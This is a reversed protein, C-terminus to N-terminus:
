GTANYQLLRGSDDPTGARGLLFLRSNTLFIAQLNDIEGGFYFTDVVTDILSSTDWPTSRVLKQITQGAGVRYLCTGDPPTFSVSAGMTSIPLTFSATTIDWPSGFDIQYLHSNADNGTGVVRTGESKFSIDSFNKALGGFGTAFGGIRTPIQTTDNWFFNPSLNFSVLNGIILGTAGALWLTSGDDSVAIGFVHEMNEPIAANQLYTGYFSQGDLDWGSGSDFYNLVQQHFALGLYLHKGDNSWDMCYAADNVLIEKSFSFRNLPLGCTLPPVYPSKFRPPLVLSM